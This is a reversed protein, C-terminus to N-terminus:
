CGLLDSKSHILRQIPQMKLASWSHFDHSLLLFGLMLSLGGFTSIGVTIEFYFWGVSDRGYFDFGTQKFSSM